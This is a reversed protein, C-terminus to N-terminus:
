AYAESLALFESSNIPKFRVKDLPQAICPSALNPNFLSIPTRGIIHWGGPTEQPYIGTQDGGIGVSGAPVRASPIAKRPYVLLPNLGGLYLFGPSFGLMHLLYDTNSHLEIVEQRSLGKATALADMDPAYIKDYCVPITILQSEYEDQPIDNKFVTALVDLMQQHNGKTPVYCLTLSQYAPIIDTIVEALETSLFRALWQIQRSLEENVPATLLISVAADGNAVIQYSLKSM